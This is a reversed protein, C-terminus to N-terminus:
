HLASGSIACGAKKLCTSPVGEKGPRESDKPLRGIFYRVIKGLLFYLFTQATIGTLILVPLYLVSIYRHTDELRYFLEALVLGITIAPLAAVAFFYLFIGGPPKKIYDSIVSGEGPNIGGVLGTVFIIWGCIITWFIIKDRRFNAWLRM